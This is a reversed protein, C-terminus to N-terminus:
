ARGARPSACVAASRGRAREVRRNGDQWQQRALEIDVGAGIMPAAASRPWLPAAEALIRDGLEYGPRALAFGGHAHLCKLSGTRSSGGIGVRCSPGSSASSPRRPPSARASCRIATPRRTWREVGGGGRAALAARRSAPLHRLVADPVPARARRVAGARHGGPLRVPLPRERAPVCAARGSSGSSSRARDTMETRSSRSNQAQALRRHGPRHLAAREAERARAARRASSRTVPASSRSGSSCSFKQAQLARM